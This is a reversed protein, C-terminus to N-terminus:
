TRNNKASNDLYRVDKNRAMKDEKLKTEILKTIRDVEIMGINVYHLIEQASLSMGGSKSAQCMEGATNLTITMSGRSLLEEELTADLLSVDTEKEPLNLYVFTICIPVHLISLSM